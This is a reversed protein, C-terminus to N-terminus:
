PRREQGDPRVVPIEATAPGHTHFSAIQQAERRQAAKKERLEQANMRGLPKNPLFVVALLSAVALPVTCLFAGSIAQAYVEEVIVRIPEPMSAVAPLTGSQLQQAWRGGEPGLSALAAQMDATREGLGGTVSAAVYAGMGAVGASGGLTRFFTVGSTAVGMNEPATTNQVVLVLNQMTIGMGTGVVAMYVCALWFPTDYRLTGLLGLGVTLLAAGTVVYPKWHGYKTILRGVYTSTLLFAVMLPLTMFGAESPTAGRALQMYQSLYVGSGFMALGAALSAVTALNFTRDRFLRLPILPERVKAEVLVFLAAALLGGGVMWATTASAADFEVGVRTVWLLLLTTATSMLLIGLVDIRLKAGRPLSALNLNREVMVLAVLAFPVSVFFNWRWGLTDTILGGLLPGGVSAVAMVAGFLGMYRGRERPSIIDAMIVQSLAIMGGGSLGQLVRCTIMWVPDQSFGAAMTATVFLVIALQYLRKRSFLDAFKGWVPTAIATALMMATVVWTYTSQDGHLDHVIVPLSTSVVTNAIMSVFMGLLLGTLAQLIRRHREDDTSGVVAVSSTAPSSSESM